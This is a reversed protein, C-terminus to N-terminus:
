QSGSLVEFSAEESNGRVEPLYMLEAKAPLATLRGPTEVRMRYAFRHTGKPLHGVFFAVKRDRDERRAQTTSAMPTELIEFGAPRHDEVIVYSYNADAVVELDVQIEDGVSLPGSDLTKWEGEAQLNKVMPKLDEVLAPDRIILKGESITVDVPKDRKGIRSLLLSPELPVFERQTAVKKHYHRVIRFGWSQARIRDVKEFAELSASYYLRGEGSKRIELVNEGPQLDGLPVFLRVPTKAADGPEFSAEGSPKGNVFVQAKFRPSLERTGRAAELFTLLAAVTDKTSDWAKGRRRGSKLFARVVVATVEVGNDTWGYRNHRGEWFAGGIARAKLERLIRLAKSKQGTAGYMEALLAMSYTDLLQNDLNGIKAELDQRDAQSARDMRKQLHEIERELSTNATMVQDLHAHVLKSDSLSAYLLLTRAKLDKERSLLSRSSEMGRRLVYSDVSIGAERALNLGWVVYATLYPNTADSEWWGWGGDPHQYDYLRKLGTKVMKPLEKELKENRIGMEKLTKWVAIDPLFSSMTQETCGYPYTALYELSELIPGMLSPSLSVTLGGSEPILSPPASFPRSIDAFTRGSLFARREAGHVLIPLPLEVGDSDDGRAIATIRFSSGQPPLNQIRGKWDRKVTGGAPIEVKVSEPSDLAIGPAELSIESSQTKESQNHVIASFTIEDDQVAFRPLLLCSM